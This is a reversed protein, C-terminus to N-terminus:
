HPYMKRWEAIARAANDWAVDTTSRRHRPQYNERFYRIAQAATGELRETRKPQYMSRWVEQARSPCHKSRLDLLDERVKQVRQRAPGSPLRRACADLYGVGDDLFKMLEEPRM